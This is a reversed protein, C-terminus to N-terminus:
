EEDEMLLATSRMAAGEFVLSFRLERYTTAAATMVVTAGHIYPSDKDPRLYDVVAALPFIDGTGRGDYLHVGWTFTPEELFYAGFYVDTQVDTTGRYVVIQRARAPRAQANALERSRARLEDDMFHM